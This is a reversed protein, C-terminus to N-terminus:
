EDVDVCFGDAAQYLFAQNTRENEREEDLYYSSSIIRMSSLRKQGSLALLLSLSFSDPQRFSGLFILNMHSEHSHMTISTPSSLELDLQDHKATFRYLSTTFIAKYASTLMMIM